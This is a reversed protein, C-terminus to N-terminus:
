ALWGLVILAAGAGILLVAAARVAAAGFPTLKELAVFLTLGAIWVLNMIGGVFLLLMLVACCGVCYLGHGLGMRWAGFVGRRWHAAMFSAPARCQKLCASKLPTLQYLGAAILLAGSMLMSRSNMLVSLAGARELMWQLAVAVLSFLIWLALYGGAFAAISASAGRNDGRKEAQRAAHAYLLVMPSASPLMMAVMMAAWMFFAILWYAPTWGSGFASAGASALWWGSMAAPDMGTGAGALVALWALLSLLVLAALIVAGDRRLVSEFGM